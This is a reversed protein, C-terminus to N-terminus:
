QARKQTWAIEFDIEIWFSAGGGLLVLCLCLFYILRIMSSGAAAASSRGGGDGRSFRPRPRRDEYKLEEEM